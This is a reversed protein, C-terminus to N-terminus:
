LTSIAHNLAHVESEVAAQWGDEDRTWIKRTHMAEGEKMHRKKPAVRTGPGRSGVQLKSFPIALSAM